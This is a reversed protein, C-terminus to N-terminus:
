KEADLDYMQNSDLVWIRTLLQCEKKSLMLQM